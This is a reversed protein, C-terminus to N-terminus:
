LIFTAMMNVLLLHKAMVVMLSIFQKALNIQVYRRCNGDSIKCTGKILLVKTCKGMLSSGLISTGIVHSNRSVTSAMTCHTQSWNGSPTVGIMQLKFTSTGMLITVPSLVQAGSSMRLTSQQQLFLLLSAVIYVTYSDLTCINCYHMGYLASLCLRSSAWYDHGIGQVYNIM